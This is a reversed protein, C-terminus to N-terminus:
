IRSRAGTKKRRPHADLRYLIGPPSYCTREHIAPELGARAELRMRTLDRTFSRNTTPSRFGPSRPLWGRPRKLPRLTYEGAKRGGNKKYRNERCIM